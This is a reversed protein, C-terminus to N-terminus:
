GYLDDPWLGGDDAFEFLQIARSSLFPSFKAPIGTSGIVEDSPKTEALANQWHEAIRRLALRPHGCGSSSCYDTPLDGYIVWWGVSGPAAVSEVAWVSVYPVVHWAPLDGVCGHQLRQKSLYELIKPRSALFWAEEAADDWENAPAETM